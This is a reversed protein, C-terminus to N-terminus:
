QARLYPFAPTTLMIRARNIVEFKPEVRLHNFIDRMSHKGDALDMIKKVSDDPPAAPYPRPGSDSRYKQDSTLMYSKQITRARAFRQDLFSECIQLESMRQRAADKRQLYFWLMPSKELMFLNSLQWRRV